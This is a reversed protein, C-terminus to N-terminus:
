DDLQCLLAAGRKIWHSPDVSTPLLIPLVFNTSHGTTSLTGRRESTKYVPCNYRIVKISLEDLKERLIPKLWIVPMPEYLVKPFQEGLEMSDYDWRCGDLFLGHIYAGDSPPKDEKQTALVEFDFTLLDIPIRTRRAYNQLVGTLFAQTFFFGSVWYTAPKDDIFWNQFFKLREILDNVYSGLPKLSPYSRRAWLAPLKGISLAAALSELSESMIALGKIAKRLDNLTSKIINTLNNFREMEQVLVTNMSEEYKVPYKQYAQSIDYAEPLKNLIDSAIDDTRSDIVGGGEASTQGVTLLISDCLIRTESLERTIDVNEHMGFVEPNQTAPLGKIFELYENYDMKPPAYYLGSPSFKYRLDSVVNQCLFDHLITMLCRRDREDTVRGGYNCEGTMYQIADYPVKEYENVFMQLQRVSIRLDSENFGYPINWGLPGFKIREQVLAHFFCLGFLLKEFVTEKGPCGEFFEPDSIPDNLYSQLLNQRLGTPPENTMKIGNQLVTVPFKPSPYSTLWLRFTANTNEVTMDECIKELATMWSVALHCNQLLVWSGDQKGQTIMKAAIPGQGQGLSISQFRAGGFGKDTAFKLLAMTPDAGPSLIFILPTTCSSDQYSRALDFPPPEVFKRGLKERVYKMVGPVVKDPRICRLIILTKFIDLKDWPEPLQAEQPEKSDYYQKWEALHTTFHERFTAFAKLSSMRCIEDWSKDSLWGAAPNALKNELGVGGTLFFLFEDMELEGRSKVINISMGFSFLVKHREFLSRCVNTYLNYEFHDKLYRLRRELIKSKNSDHISNVYLNVFWALSYQYMPDINPLDTLSFFLIASHKAIPSYDMRAADIKIQTEEAVKQKRLIDDSILKSSDLIEIAAENELINGESESLTALIRDETEKLMRRNNATTIILEQRAEELEPKEKAVVIGLLQDELGELTIMFNLLSVKVAIEPLYHPNRLKTTIYLRFDKSYEIINEGLRIMEVGSQKFTQKLLLPELSPDLDEGVNELLIPTGFQIGNELNRIFDSDTLKVVLIGSEKEMNKIWKNAQGQPDIMLPWRRANAVIVSNDISFADRPLGNINWQQIKVPDGLCQTLTFPESCPIQQAKCEVIWDSICEDRYILTFPGLYAIIGASILVDGTLNHYLKKLYDAAQAWRDKEGGLGGILKTARELKTACDQVEDELRQKENQTAELQNQLNQLKEEVEALAAQTKKLIGYERGTQEMALIWKCLGEAASSARAVKVPDFEPNTMFDKRIRLMIAPNINDKDYEKLLTLFNLDGLLKKSPGWYDNIKKGSGSPDNVKDPKIDRMVCVAEMVLKVGPPPNQMSKVITIDSPKLTDLACLAAELAPQAEALDARCEESLAKSADAKQNVIEEEAKVKVRQEEVAVSETAIVTLLKENEESALVLQPQLEELKIQMDAVQESAFALKDLGNVYRMRARSTENQKQTLLRKFSDILELYSTPTVYTKRGLNRLFKESLPVISTHFYKFLHVTSERVNDEMDLNQLARNAVRILGDEPWPQFWDITCCNILAPFQRLRNRFAEGIPSFAMVVHLKERCRDVFLAYLALPSLDASKSQGSAELCNQIIDMLEAKEESTYLNPVEGSNLLNDVDELFNEEKIQTDTMLFVTNKGEGGARRLLAKIDERWENKGYNKSIEPQFVTYGAMASALRTLSQRGSGGVGVLLANGGPVRLIRCIRSLHELVYRFIVLSMKKKNANNYDDLCREVVPYMESIDKIEEYVRDEPLSDVDMFDGFMLYGRLHTEDITEGEKTALHGFLQDFREKFNNELCGRIFTYLWTRDTDDTLRDYFVRMVEHAWLRSFTRKSEVRDKQILCVGLIVRSFDRLNFLYHSKAPTPLLNEIAAKYVELTSAVIVQGITIYESSFEQSRMYISMLTSFIKTMTEDSFPTMSIVHFHRMFRQTVDNRGGGPPGMAGILHIDQLTLKTTDKLDYWYGHDILMRLLEVPPQAGYIEKTPMNLDDVFLIATKGMPPGYIGKRRRDIKSMVIFQTQNASTQASFNIFYAVYKEKDIERMLKEQVYVSKGTGTPGVYLLPRRKLICLDVFFKYRATDMTPVIIERIKRDSFNENARNKDNWHKWSGRSKMKYYFDYVLGSEPFPFELRQGLQKPLPHNENTGAMLNRLFRDFKKRSNYDLCGAIGWILSFVIAAQLWLRLYRNDCADEENAIDEILMDVFGLCSTVLNAQRVSVMTRCETQVFELCPDITWELMENIIVKGDGATLSAPLRNMWSRAIPRWGLSLPEMYIMGCRSVTAPSAQSLDMTEFILSMVRSMQIIEGSMLCLKKNDDLVTNMSEIWLTDIPGDFIVWKRDPTDTSAFERFTNATVGDTWEHSVPDFEGFLQGMTIAKPNITRYIVKEYEDHGSENLRTMVTALTHLVTTKSGFPEGVLMFGHRVIMMEYTQIIKETFFKVSQINREQCVKHVEALFISYDAEPLVIGPFLDSIIGRFLPIDHSLFKPLNVDIISRLLIINEDENPYKLKLNGAAQLVAKVARMGYDYHAQSSLQESCLRYTTVIKVSLSRADMFGYSYLSIEGIMAYDPVMMAVPRFLVKLNDPLESRGAYGPNMTICVYCNPNLNLETGEFVFVELHAQIARIICLIQQAVVSLVELEIRNFEDFCAWAGSSALGKFFKGMAIYDLGDSCNFVVCQVAIAKALDKTTETKGTGAPGEPAGNLNLHYAGILTRYCRDTLPTIVLRPSNGLYEYAYAVKANTLKVQVNENEWYYRLQSLWNFDNESTVGLKIMEQVVDRAHVDIVVLAGLTIRQQANLKGRVLRVIDAMQEDLKEHYNELGKVGYSLSEHVELTWYIQSVCLVVQGPWHCVWLDRREDGYAERAAAIVDRVSMVMVKEVQLLWKEVAGRAESTSIPQSLQVKEGESSFMAKIDLRNDFELKAIGEFCKKLHPQVRLPDKTESLIELMEDNSLFFFRAFYLRKKELYANLGKNIKDLLANSDKIKELIGPFDTAKLVNPDKVTNKMIDKFNRNVVQFLRGEEPMQQMIDESSFIPELYLWQAQMKLWEDITEQIHLLREEWAKIEVEFPKIFPSGRMTQTKVIQDDLMQQTDDVSALIFIGSERYPILGFSIETWDDRMKNMNTELTFEKSAGTSIGAFEEMYPDLNMQLIKALSTGSDPTLDRGAIESMADWHRKRIGPNCLVAIVPITEKFNKIQEQISKIIDLAAPPRVDETEEEEQEPLLGDEKAEGEAAAAAGEGTAIDVSQLRRRKRRSKRRADLEMRMKKVRATFIKQLKFIERWYDEVEAEIAEANLKDFEGHLWRRESKCYKVVTTFLRHFPETLNRIEELEPYNSITLKYLDEEKNIWIKENEADQLRKLVARVDQVYQTQMETDMEGYDNFEDVRNKLRNIETVLKERRAVVAAEAVTRMREQLKDNADFEPYIRTKWTLVASNKAIDEPSFLYVDLLYDLYEMTLSIKETMRIMGQCRAEEMYQIMDILEESNQPIARCRDRMEEFAECIEDNNQRFDSVVRDLLLNALRHCEKSLGVKVDECDLRILDFYEANPLTMVENALDHLKAIYECYHEFQKGSRLFEEVKRAEGGDFIFSYPEVIVKVFYQYPTEFYLKVAEQLKRRCAGHVDFPVKADIFVPVSLSNLWSEVTQISQLSECIQGTIFFILEELDEFSPYFLVKQDEYTLYMKLVPLREKHDEEFTDVWELLNRQLFQKLQISLLTSVSRYFSELASPKMSPISNRDVFLQIVKPYWKQMLHECKSEVEQKVRIRLDGFDIAGLERYKPISTLETNHLYQYCLGLIKQMHPYTIMLQPVLEKKQMLYDSHWSESFVPIKPGEPPLSLDDDSLQPLNPKKLTQRALSKKLSELFNERVELLVGNLEEERGTKLRKPIKALINQLWSDQIQPIVSSEVYSKMIKFNKALRMEESVMFTPLFPPENPVPLSALEIQTKRYAAHARRINLKNLQLRKEKELSYQIFKQLKPDKEKEAIELKIKEVQPLPMLKRKIPSNFDKM